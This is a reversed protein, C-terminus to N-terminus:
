YLDVGYFYHGGLPSSRYNVVENRMPTFSISSAIPLVPVEEDLIANALGYLAERDTSTKARSAEDLLRDFNENCWYSRNAGTKAAPCGLIPALFLSRDFNEAIWGFLMVDHQGVMTQKIFDRGTSVIITSNVGIKLWDKHIMEAMLRADPMYPRAVPSPWVEIELGSVGAEELLQRAGEPDAPPLLPPPPLAAEASWFVTPMMTTAPWGLGQYINEMIARRDIALALARRVRPDNLPPRRVNFALYGVDMKVQRALRVDGDLMMAPIDAPDPDAVVHCERDRLKQYRVAADPTIIFVLNDLPAKGRWYKRHAVYRILADRQYQVLQFPGTGVPETDVREPTGAALMANAFEASLISAFDLALLSLFAPYPSVLSFVVTGDDDATVSRLIKRLGLGQFYPYVGGSVQSFPHKKDLQRMFSFVVDEAAFPRSPNFDRSEHFSVNERLKFEYRLGDDSVQWSIALSPAIEATGPKYAVLRDYIQRSTADFTAQRYSLQPNFIDPSEESCFVLTKVQASAEGAFIVCLLVATLYRRINV